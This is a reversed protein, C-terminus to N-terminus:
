EQLLNTTEIVIDQAQRAFEKTDFNDEYKRVKRLELLSKGKKELETYKTKAGQFDFVTPM